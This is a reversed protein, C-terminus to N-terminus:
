ANRANKLAAQLKQFAAFRADHVPRATADPAYEAAPRSMAAMAQGMGAFTGAAVAGLIASGLLVPEAAESALVPKGTGDALLQRVLDLQGAGGSIVIRDVPAGAKDQAEIIQRLGYAVGCLGAVYLAVLS